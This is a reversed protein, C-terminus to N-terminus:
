KSQGRAPAIPRVLADFKEAKRPRRAQASLPRGTARRMGPEQAASSWRRASPRANGVALGPCGGLDADDIGLVRSKQRRRRAGAKPSGPRTVRPPPADCLFAAKALTMERYLDIRSQWKQNASAIDFIEANKPLVDSPRPLFHPTRVTQHPHPGNV